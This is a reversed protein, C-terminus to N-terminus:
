NKPCNLNILCVYFFVISFLLALKNESLRLKILNLIDNVRKSNLYDDVLM